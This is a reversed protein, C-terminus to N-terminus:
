DFSIIISGGGVLLLQAANLETIADETQAQLETTETAAVNTEINNMILEVGTFASSTDKEGADQTGALRLWRSQIRGLVCSV